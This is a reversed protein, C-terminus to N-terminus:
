IPQWCKLTSLDQFLSLFSTDNNVSVILHKTVCHFMSNMLQKGRHWPWCFDYEYDASSFGKTTTRGSKLKRSTHVCIQLDNSTDCYHVSLPIDVLCKWWLLCRSNGSVCVCQTVTHWFDSKFFWIAILISENRSRHEHERKTENKQRKSELLTHEGAASLLESQFNSRNWTAGPLVNQRQM